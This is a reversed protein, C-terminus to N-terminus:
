PSPNVFESIPIHGFYFGSGNYSVIALNKDVNNMELIDGEYIEKGSKDLLGTFQMITLNDSDIPVYDDGVKVAICKTGYRITLDKMTFPESMTKIPKYYVRFKITRMKNYFNERLLSM